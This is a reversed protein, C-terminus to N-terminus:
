IAYLPPKQVYMITHWFVLIEYAPGITVTFGSIKALIQNERIANFSM